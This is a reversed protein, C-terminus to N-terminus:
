TREYTLVTSGVLITDGTRLLIETAIKQGNVMTGNTSQLDHLRHGESNAVLIAHQRSVDPDNLAITISPDRGLQVTDGRLPYTRGVLQPDPGRVIKLLGTAPTPTPAPSPRQAIRTSDEFHAM